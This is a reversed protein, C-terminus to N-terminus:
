LACIQMIMALSAVSQLSRAERGAREYRPYRHIQRHGHMSNSRTAERQLAHLCTKEAHRGAAAEIDVLRPPHVSVDAKPQRPVRVPRLMTLGTMRVTMSLKTTTAAM